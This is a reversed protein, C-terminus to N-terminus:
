KNLSSIPVEKFKEKWNWNQIAQVKNMWLPQGPMYNTQTFLSEIFCGKKHKGWVYWSMSGKGGLAWSCRKQVTMRCNCFPCPDLKKSSM